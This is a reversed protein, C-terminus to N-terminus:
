IRYGKEPISLGPFANIYSLSAAVATGIRADLTVMNGLLFLIRLAKLEHRNLNNDRRDSKDGHCLQWLHEQLPDSIKAGREENLVSEIKIMAREVYDPLNKLISPGRMGERWYTSQFNFLLYASLDYGLEILKHAYEHKGALSLSALLDPRIPAMVGSPYHTTEIFAPWGAETFTGNNWLYRGKWDDVGALLLFLRAKQQWDDPDLTDQIADDFLARFLNGKIVDALPFNFIDSLVLAENNQELYGGMVNFLSKLRNQFQKSLPGPLGPILNVLTLIAAKKEANPYRLWEIGQTVHTLYNLWQSEDGEVRLCVTPDHVWWLRDIPPQDATFKDGVLWHMSAIRVHDWSNNM